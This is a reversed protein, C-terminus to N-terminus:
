ALGTFAAEAALGERLPFGRDVPEGCVLDRHGAVRGACLAGLILTAPDHFPSAFLSLVFLAALIAREGLARSERWVSRGFAGALVLAPGGGEFVLWLWENHPHEPRTHFHDIDYHAMMGLFAERFSGLGHGFLTLNAVTDQWLALREIGSQSRFAVVFIVAAALMVGLKALRQLKRIRRFQVGTPCGSTMASGILARLDIAAFVVFAALWAARSGSLVLAPISAAAAPWMRFAISGAFVIAAAAGLRDPNFFLGAPLDDLTQVFGFVGFWQLAAVAGNLGIGVAAGALVPRLSPTVSGLMFAVAALLMESAADIGDYRGDGHSWGLSVLMWGILSLGLWHAATMRLRPAFFLALALTAAVDWRATTAVGSIGPWYATMLLFGFIRWLWETM